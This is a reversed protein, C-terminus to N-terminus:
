SGVLRIGYYINPTTVNDDGIKVTGSGGGNSRWAGVATALLGDTMDPLSSILDLALTVAETGPSTALLKTYTSTWITAASGEFKLGIKVNADWNNTSTELYLQAILRAYLINGKPFLESMNLATYKEM